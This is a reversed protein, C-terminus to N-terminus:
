GQVVGGLEYVSPAGEATLRVRDGEVDYEGAIAFFPTGAGLVATAAPADAREVWQGVPLHGLPWAAGHRNYLRAGRLVVLVDDSTPKATVVLRREDSVWAWSDTADLQLLADLEDLCTNKGDRWQRSATTLGVQISEGNALLAVTAAGAIAAVQQATTRHGWVEFVLSSASTEWTSGDWLKLDGDAYGGDGDLLVEYYNETDNAGSRKIKIWYDTASSLSTTNAFTWTVWGFDDDDLLDGDIAISETSPFAPEGSDDTTLECLLNDSPAGVRRVQLRVEGVTWAATESHRFQQALIGGRLTLTVSEGPLELTTASAVAFSNGQELTISAGASEASITGGVATVTTIEYLDESKQLHVGDNSSSGSVVLLERAYFAGLGRNNDKIDDTIEFFIGTSTHSALGTKKEGETVAYAGDNSTSGDVRVVDGAELGVFRGDLDHIRYYMFGVTTDTLGWGIKQTARTTGQPHVIRGESNEYYQWGLLAWHGRCGLVAAGDDDRDTYVPKAAIGVARDRWAEAQTTTLQDLSLTLERAGYYAVSAAEDAWDTELLAGSADTYIVRVRNHMEELSYGFTGAAVESIYGWWVLVGQPNWVRVRHGLWHRLNRLDEAPGTAELECFDPGGLAWGYRRPRLAVVTRLTEDNRDRVEVRWSM